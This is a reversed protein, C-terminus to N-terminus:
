AFLEKVVRAREVGTLKQDLGQFRYILKEHDLGLAHLITAHFDRVSVKNTEAKFGIEDTEGYSFGQKIGNAYDAPLYRELARRLIIKGDNMPCVM